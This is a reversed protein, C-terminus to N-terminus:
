KKRFIKIIKTADNAIKLTLSSVKSLIYLFNVLDDLPLPNTMIEETVHNKEFLM